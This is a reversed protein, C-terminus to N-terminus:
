AASAACRGSVRTYTREAPSWVVYAVDGAAVSAIRTGLVSASGPGAAILEAPRDSGSDFRAWLLDCDTEMGRYAAAGYLVLDSRGDAHRVEFGRQADTVPGADAEDALPLLVTTVDHPPAGNWAYCLAPAPQQLGYVPSVAAGEVSWMGPGLAILRLTADAAEIRARDAAAEATVGPACQFRLEFGHPAAGDVRDRIIWYGSRLFLVTRRHVLGPELREYGRHEGDFYDFRDHTAWVRTTCDARTSWSFPGAPESSDREDILLTSHAATGRFANRGAQDGTYTYTGADVILPVGRVSVEVALADAHAHGASLGGHPGCDVFMYNATSSWSDRLTFYGADPFARSLREPPAAPV